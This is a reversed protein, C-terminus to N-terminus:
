EPFKMKKVLVKYRPDSRVPDLLPSVKLYVMQPDHRAFGQELWGIAEEARGLVCLDEARIILWCGQNPNEWDKFAKEAEAKMGLKVYVLPRINDGDIVDFAKQWMEKGIYLGQLYALTLWGENTQKTVGRERVLSELYSIGEDFKRVYFDVWGIKCQYIIGPDLEGLRTCVRIAEDFRGMATLYDYYTSLVSINNPDTAYAKQYHAGAEQWDWEMFYKYYAMASQAEPLSEDLELAKVAHFKAKRRSEAVDFGWSAFWTQLDAMAAHAEALQPDADIAKQFSIIAEGFENTGAKKVHAMGKRYERYAESNLNKTRAKIPPFSKRPLFIWAAGTIMLLLIAISAISIVKRGERIRLGLRAKVSAAKLKSSKTKISKKDKGSSPWLSQSVFRNQLSELDKLLATASAYRDGRKKQLCKQLLQDLEPPIEEGVGELPEPESHLIRDMTKTPTDGTFPLRGSVLQYLTVGLSYIDSRTDMEEGLLQEPSMYHITGMVLGPTTSAMTSYRSGDQHIRKALGFDLVKVEGQGNVMLNAPKLDRHIINKEHAAELAEAVRIGIQLVRDVPVSAGRPKGAEPPVCPTSTIAMQEALSQGELLEMVLIQRGAWEELGYITAIGPHNLAALVRAEHRFRRLREPDVSFEEPLVKIAVQRPLKGDGARYVEGMGGRGLMSLIEYPGLKQGVLSQNEKKASGEVAEALVPKAMFVGAQERAALLSEVERRLQEDGDCARELFEKREGPERDLVDNFIEDVQQWRNRNM